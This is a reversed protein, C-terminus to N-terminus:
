LISLREWPCLRNIAATIVCKLPPHGTTDLEAAATDTVRDLLCREGRLLVVLRRNSCLGTCHASLGKAAQIICDLYPLHSLTGFDLESVPSSLM